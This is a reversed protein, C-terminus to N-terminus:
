GTCFLVVGGTSSHVVHSVLIDSRAAGWKNSNIGGHLM